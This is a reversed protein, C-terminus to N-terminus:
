AGAAHREALQHSEAQEPVVLAHRRRARQLDTQHLLHHWAVLQEVSRSVDGDFIADEGCTATWPVTREIQSARSIGRECAIAIAM